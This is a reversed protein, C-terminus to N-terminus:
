AYALAERQNRSRVRQAARRSSSDLHLDPSADPQGKLWLRLELPLGDVLLALSLRPRGSPWDRSSCAGRDSLLAPRESPGGLSELLRRGVQISLDRFAEEAEGQSRARALMAGLGTPCRLVLTGQTAGSFAVAREMGLAAPGAAPRGDFRVSFDGWASLVDKILEDMVIKGARAGSESGEIDAQM